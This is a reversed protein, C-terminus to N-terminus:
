LGSVAWEAVPSTHPGFPGWGVGAVQAGAPLQFPICIWGTWDWGRAGLPLNARGPYGDCGRVPLAPTYTRGGQVVMAMATDEEIKRLEAAAGKRTHGSVGATLQARWLTGGPTTPPWLDVTLYLAGRDTKATKGEWVSRATNVQYTLPLPGIVRPKRTTAGGVGSWAGMLLAVLGAVAIWRRM